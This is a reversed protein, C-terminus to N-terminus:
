FHYDSRDCPVVKLDLWPLRQIEKLRSVSLRGGGAYRPAQLGAGRQDPSPMLSNAQAFFRGDDSRYIWGVVSGDLAVTSIGTIRIVSKRDSPDLLRNGIAYKAGGCTKGSVVTAVPVAFELQHRADQQATLMLM